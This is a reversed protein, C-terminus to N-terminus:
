LVPSFGPTSWDWSRGESQTVLFHPSPPASLLSLWPGSSWFCTASGSPCLKLFGLLRHNGMSFTGASSVTHEHGIQPAANAFIVEGRMEKAPPPLSGVIVPPPSQPSLLLQMDLLLSVFIVLMHLGVHSKKWYIGSCCSGPFLSRPRSSGRLLPVDPFLFSKQINPFCASCM